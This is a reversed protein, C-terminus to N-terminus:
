YKFGKKHQPTRWNAGYTIVLFEEINSNIPLQVGFVEITPLPFQFFRKNWKIWDAYLLESHGNDVLWNIDIKEGNRILYHDLLPIDVRPITFGLAELEKFASEVKLYDDRFCLVDTDSDWDIFDRGRVMGLLTGFALVFKIGHREFVQKFDLLNQRAVEKNMMGGQRVGQEWIPLSTM